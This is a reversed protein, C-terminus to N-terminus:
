INGISPLYMPQNHHDQPRYIHRSHYWHHGDMIGSVDMATTTTTINYTADDQTIRGTANFPRPTLTPGHGTDRRVRNIVNGYLNKGIESEGTRM